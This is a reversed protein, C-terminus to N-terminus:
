MSLEFFWYQIWECFWDVSDGSLFKMCFEHPFKRCLTGVCFGYLCLIIMQVKKGFNPLNIQNSKEDIAIGLVFTSLESTKVLMDLQSLPSSLLSRLSPARTWTGSSASLNRILQIPSFISPPLLQLPITFIFSHSSKWMIFYCFIWKKDNQLCPNHDSIWLNPEHEFNWSIDMWYEILM